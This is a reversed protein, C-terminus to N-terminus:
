KEGQLNCLCTGYLPTRVKFGAAHKHGGGGLKKAIESVDLGNEDSRLSYVFGEGDYYFTSAFPEGKALLNGMDSSFTYPVNVTWVNHGYIDIRFKNASLELTDKAKAALIAAGADAVKTFQFSVDESFRNWNEFTYDLSFGYASVVGTAKLKFRWLDRDEVFEVLHPVKDSPHFYEWTIRAGSKEMNFHVSVNPALEGALDSEATKHHDLIVIHEATLAMGLIVSRKYSFDVMYVRRGTVDPPPDGHKAPYFEWDPHSKWVAWAATFGDQCNGHYIVLPKTM